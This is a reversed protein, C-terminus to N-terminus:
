NLKTEAVPMVTQEFWSKFVAMEDYHSAVELFYQIVLPIDALYQPKHDRIHLRAFIGMVKLQRQLGMLDFDRSFQARSIDNILGKDSAERYYDDCWKELRKSPWCIYCDRLLSVLDYTYPGCVADQFDIIGPGAEEASDERELILLNRSHYDRHVALQTQSVASEELFCFTNAIMERDADTLQLQLFEECFWNEFLAMEEHLKKRSYPDLRGCDINKQFKLLSSIAQGYLLDSNEISNSQQDKQQEKLLAPLYLRDGFDEILMFGKDFDSAITKPTLVGAERFLNAVAVFSESDENEPPADVAILTIQDLSARFYRRFSADGSVVELSEFNDHPIGLRLLETHTWESLQQRRTDKMDSV